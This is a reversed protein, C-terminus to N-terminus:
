CIVNSLGIVTTIVLSTPELGLLEGLESDKKREIYAVYQLVKSLRLRNRDTCITKVGPM